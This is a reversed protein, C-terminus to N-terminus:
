PADDGNPSLLRWGDRQLRGALQEQTVIIGEPSSHAICCTGGHSAPEPLSLLIWQDQTIWQARARMYTPSQWIQGNVVEPQAKRIELPDTLPLGDKFRAGMGSAALEIYYDADIM